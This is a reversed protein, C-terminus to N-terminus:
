GSRRGTKWRANPRSTVSTKEASSVARSTASVSARLPKSFWESRSPAYRNRVVPSGSSKRESPSRNRCSGSPWTSCTFSASSSSTAHGPVVPPPWVLQPGDDGIRGEEFLRVAHHQPRLPLGADEAGRGHLLPHRSPEEPRTAAPHRGFVRQQGRGRALSGVPLRR